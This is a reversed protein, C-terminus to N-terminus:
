KIRERRQITIGGFKVETLVKGIGKQRFLWAALREPHPPDEEYLTYLLPIKEAVPTQHYRTTGRWLFLYDYAHPIVPPVYVDLGFNRGATDQYVWDVALKQNGLVISDPNNINSNLHRGLISGNDQLFLWLFLGLILKGIQTSNISTIIVSFILVFILYYGTFYYSYIIGNNGRFFLLGILPLILLTLLLVFKDNSLFRKINALLIVLILFSFIQILKSNTPFILPGFTDFYLPFRRELLWATTQNFSKQEFLFQSINHYLLGGHRFDFVIQPLLTILFLSVSILLIKKNPLKRRQRSRLALWLSFILVAPLYFVEAASGFQLALGLMLAILIWVVTQGKLVLFMGLVLLMSILLMPTPNSLWRSAYVLQFSFASIVAAVIGTVRGGVMVGIVYILLTAAVTTLSLFVSPWVPNGNGLLYFPAILWYYWPGRFIGEIGTTPGILSIKGQHWLEWIIKADRGQDYYFGLLEDIRWVRLLFAAILIVVLFLSIIKKNFM